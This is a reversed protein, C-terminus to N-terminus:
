KSSLSQKKPFPLKLLINVINRAKGKVTDDTSMMSIRNFVDVFNDITSYLNDLEAALREMMDNNHSTADFNHDKDYSSEDIKGEGKKMGNEFSDRSLGNSSQKQGAYNITNAAKNMHKMWEHFDQGGGNVYDDAAKKAKGCIQGLKDQGKDTEGVENVKKKKKKDEERRKDYDEYDTRRLIDYEDPESEMPKGGPTLSFYFGEQLNSTIKYKRYWNNKPSIGGGIEKVRGMDAYHKMIELFKGINGVAQGNGNLPSTVAFVGPEQHQLDKFNLNYKQCLWQLDGIAEQYNLTEQGGDAGQNSNDKNKNPFFFIENLNKKVSENIIKNLRKQSIKVSM